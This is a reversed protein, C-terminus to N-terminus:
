EWHFITRMDKETIYFEVHKTAIKDSIMLNRNLFLDVNLKTRINTKIENQQQKDQRKTKKLAILMPERSFFWKM